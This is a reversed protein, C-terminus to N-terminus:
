NSNSDEFVKIFKQIYQEVAEKYLVSRKKGTFKEIQKIKEFTPIDVAVTLIKKKEM